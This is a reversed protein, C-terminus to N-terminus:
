GAAAAEAGAQGATSGSADSADKADPNDPSFETEFFWHANYHYNGAKADGFVAHVTGLAASRNIIYALMGKLPVGEATIISGIYYAESDLERPRSAQCLKCRWGVHQIYRWGKERALKKAMAIATRSGPHLLADACPRKCVDCLLQVKWM